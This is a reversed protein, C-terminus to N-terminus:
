DTQFELLSVSIEGSANKGIIKIKDFTKIDIQNEGDSLEVINLASDILIVKVEGRRLNIDIDLTVVGSTGAYAYLTDVGYFSTFILHKNRREIDDYSFSDGEYEVLSMDNFYIIKENPKYSLFIVVGIVVVFILVPLFKKM